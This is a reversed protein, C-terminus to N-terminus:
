DEELLRMSVLAACLSDASIPITTTSHRTVLLMVRWWEARTPRHAGDAGRPILAACQAWEMYPRSWLSDSRLAPLRDALFELPDLVRANEWRAFRDDPRRVEFHLHPSTARGTMGVRGLLCGANVIEGR